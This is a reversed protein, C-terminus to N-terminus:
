VAGLPAFGFFAGSNTCGEPPDQVWSIARDFAQLGFPAGLEVLAPFSQFNADPLPAALLETQFDIHM